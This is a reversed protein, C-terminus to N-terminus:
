TAFARPHDVYIIHRRIKPKEEAHEQFTISKIHFKCTYNQEIKAQLVLNSKTPRERFNGPELEGDVVVYAGQSKAVLGSYRPDNESSNVNIELSKMM